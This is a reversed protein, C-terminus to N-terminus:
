PKRGGRPLVGPAPGQGEGRALWGIKQLTTSVGNLDNITDTFWAVRPETRRHGPRHFGAPPTGAPKREKFLHKLTSLFPLVLLVGFLSSSLKRVINILDLREFDKVTSELVSQFFDDSFLAIADYVREIKQDVSIGNRSFTDHLTELVLAKTKENRRRYRNKLQHIYLKEMFSFSKGEFLLANLSNLFSASFRINHHKTHDYGIKYITYAM